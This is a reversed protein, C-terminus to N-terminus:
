PAARRRRLADLAARTNAAEPSDEGLSRRWIGLARELASEAEDLRGIELRLAGLNHLTTALRPQESGLLTEWMAASRLYGSEARDRAGAERDLDALGDVARALLLNPVGLAEAGHAASEYLGRATGPDGARRAEAAADLLRRVERVVEGGGAASGLTVAFIAAALAARIGPAM